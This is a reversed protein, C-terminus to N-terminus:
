YINADTNKKYGSKTLRIIIKKEAKEEGAQQTNKDRMYHTVINM